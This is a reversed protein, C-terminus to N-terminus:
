PLVAAIAVLEAWTATPHQEEFHLALPVTFMVSVSAFCAFTGLIVGDTLSTGRVPRAM